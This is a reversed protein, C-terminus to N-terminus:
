KGWKTSLGPWRERGSQQDTDIAKSAYGECRRPLNSVPRYERAAGEIEGRWAALCRGGNVFNACEVCRRRDDDGVADCLRNAAAEVEPLATTDVEIEQFHVGQSSDFSGNLPKQRYQCNRPLKNKLIRM